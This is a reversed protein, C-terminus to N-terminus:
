SAATVPRGLTPHAGIRQPDSRALRYLRLLSDTKAVTVFM